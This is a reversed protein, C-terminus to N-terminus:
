GRYRQLIGKSKEAKDPYKKEWAAIVKDYAAQDHIRKGIFFAVLNQSFNMKFQLLPDQTGGSIGGGLHLRKLGNRLCWKIGEDLMINGAAMKRGEETSSSLFYHGYPGGKLFVTSGVIKGSLKTHILTGSEITLKKLGEFYSYSFFYMSAANLRKMNDLYISVFDNFRDAKPDEVVTLGSKLAKKIKNRNASTYANEISAYPRDLEVSVYDRLHILSYSPISRLWEQNGILPHFRLFECIVKEKRCYDAFASDAAQIFEADASTTLPGTYGYVTEIDRLHDFGPVSRLLFPYFWIKDGENYIFLRIHGDGNLEYMHHYRFTFHVDQMSAPLQHFWQDWEAETSSDLVLIRGSM